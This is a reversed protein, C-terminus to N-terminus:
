RERVAAACMVLAYPAASALALLRALPDQPDFRACDVCALVLGRSTRAADDFFVMVVLKKKKTLLLSLFLSRSNWSPRLCKVVFGTFFVFCEVKAQKKKRAEEKENM